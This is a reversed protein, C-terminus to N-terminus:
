TVDLFDGISKVFNFRDILVFENLNRLLNVKQIKFEKEGITFGKYEKFLDFLRYM